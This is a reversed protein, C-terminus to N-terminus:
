EIDALIDAAPDPEMSLILIFRGAANDAKAIAESPMADSQATVTVPVSDNEEMLKVEVSNGAYDTTLEFLATDNQEEDITLGMDKLEQLLSSCFECQHRNAARRQGAEYPFLFFYGFREVKGDEFDAVASIEPSMGDYSVLYGDRTDLWLGFEDEEPSVKLLKQACESCEEKSLKSDVVGYVKTMLDHATLEMPKHLKTSDKGSTKKSASLAVSIHDRSSESEAANLSSLTALCLILTSIRLHTKMDM